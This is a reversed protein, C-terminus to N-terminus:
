SYHFVKMTYAGTVGSGGRNVIFCIDINISAPVDSGLFFVIEDLESQGRGAIYVDTFLLM